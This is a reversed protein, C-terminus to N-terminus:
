AKILLYSLCFFIPFLSLYKSPYLSCSSVTVYTVLPKLSHKWQWALFFLTEFLEILSALSIFDEWLIFLFLIDFDWTQTTRRNQTVEWLTDCSKVCSQLSVYELVELGILCRSKSLGLNRFLKTSSCISERERRCRLLSVRGSRDTHLKLCSLRSVTWRGPRHAGNASRPASLALTTLQLRVYVLM